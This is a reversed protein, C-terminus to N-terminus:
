TIKDCTLLLGIYSPHWNSQVVHVHASTGGIRLPNLAVLVTGVITIKLRTEMWLRNNYRKTSHFCVRLTRNHSCCRCSWGCLFHHCLQLATKYLLDRVRDWWWRLGIPPNLLACNLESLSVCLFSMFHSDILISYLMNWEMVLTWSCLTNVSKNHCIAACHLITDGRRTGGRISQFGEVFYIHLWIVEIASHGREMYIRNERDDDNWGGTIQWCSVGSQIHKWWLLLFMNCLM